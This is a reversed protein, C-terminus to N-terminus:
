PAPVPPFRFWEPHQAVFEEPYSDGVEGFYYVRRTPDYGTLRILSDDNAPRDVLPTQENVVAALQRLTPATLQDAPQEDPQEVTWANGQANNNREGGTGVTWVDPETTVPVTLQALREELSAGVGRYEAEPVELMTDHLGGLVELISFSAELRPMRCLKIVALSAAIQAGGIWAPTPYGDGVGPVEWDPSRRSSVTVHWGGDYGARVYRIGKRQAWDYIDQQVPIRDTTDIVVAGRDFDLHAFDTTWLRFSGRHRNTIFMHPAMNALQGRWTSSVMSSRLLEAKGSAVEGAAVPIRTLNSREIQDPDILHIKPVGILALQMGVHWGVGGAGVLIVESPVDLGVRTQRDLIATILERARQDALLTAQDWSQVPIMEGTQIDSARMMGRPHPAALSALNIVQLTEQARQVIEETSLGRFDATGWCGEHYHRFSQQAREDTTLYVGGGVVHIFVDRALRAQHEPIIDGLRGGNALQRPRYEFPGSYGPTVGDGYVPPAPPPFFSWFGDTGLVMRQNCVRCVHDHRTKPRGCACFTHGCDCPRDNVGPDRTIRCTGGMYDGYGCGCDDCKELAVNWPTLQAPTTWLGAWPGVTLRRRRANGPYPGLESDHVSRGSMPSRIRTGRPDNWTYWPGPTRTVPM